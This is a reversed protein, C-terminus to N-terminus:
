RGSFQWIILNYMFQVNYITFNYIIHHFCHIFRLQRPQSAHASVRKASVQVRASVNKGAHTNRGFGLSQGWLGDFINDLVITDLEWFFHSLIEQPRGSTWWLGGVSRRFTTGKCRSESTLFTLTEPGSYKLLFSMFDIPFATRVTLM